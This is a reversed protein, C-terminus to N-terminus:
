HLISFLTLVLGQNTDHRCHLTALQSNTKIEDNDIVSVNKKSFRLKQLFHNGSISSYWDLATSLISKHPFKQNQKFVFWIKKCVNQLITYFFYTRRWWNMRHIHKCQTMHKQAFTMKLKSNIFVDVDVSIIFAFGLSSPAFVTRFQHFPNKSHWM